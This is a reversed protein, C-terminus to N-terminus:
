IFLELSITAKNKTRTITEADKAPSLAPLVHASMFPFVVMHQALPFQGHGIHTFPATTFTVLVASPTVIDMVEVSLAATLAICSLAAFHAEIHAL